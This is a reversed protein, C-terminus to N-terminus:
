ALSKDNKLRQTYQKYLKKCSKNISTAVASVNLPKIIYSLINLKIARLVTTHNNDTTLFIFPIDDVTRIKELMKIGNVKPINIESIILDFAKEEDKRYKLFKKYGDLGNEAVTVSDFNEELVKLSINRSYSNSKVFLVKLNKKYHDYSRM